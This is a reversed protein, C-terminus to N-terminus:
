PQWRGDPLLSSDCTAVLYRYVWAIDNTGDALTVAQEVREYEHGRLKGIPIGEYPDLWRFVAVPDDLRFVEGHVIDVRSAPAIIAPYCGLDLLRGATEAEGLWTGSQELRARMESGIRARYARRMLTGYVFLFNTM